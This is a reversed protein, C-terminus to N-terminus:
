IRLVQHLRPIFWHDSSLGRGTYRATVTFSLVEQVDVRAMRMPPSPLTRSTGLKALAAHVRVEATNTVLRALQLAWRVMVEDRCRQGVM